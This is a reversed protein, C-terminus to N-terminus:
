GLKPFDYYALNPSNKLKPLSSVNSVKISSYLDKSVFSLEVVKPFKKYKHRIVGGANNVQCNVLQHHKALRDLLINYAKSFNESVFLLELQHIEILIVKFKNLTSDSLSEIIQYEGGEIDIQLLFDNENTESTEAIWTQLSKENEQKNDKAALSFKSFFQNHKLDQINSFNPDCIYSVIGLSSLEDEFTKTAGYGPSYCKKIKGLVDPTWYGGDNLSGVRILPFKKLLTNIRNFDSYIKNNERIPFVIQSSSRLVDNIFYYLFNIIFYYIYRVTKYLNSEKCLNL